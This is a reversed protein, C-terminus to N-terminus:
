GRDMTKSVVNTAVKNMKSFYSLISVLSVDKSYLLNGRSIFM